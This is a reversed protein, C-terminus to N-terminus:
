IGYRGRLANFNQQIESASLARNQIKVESVLGKFPYWTPTHGDGVTFKSSSNTHTGPYTGNTIFNGNIYINMTTNSGDYTTTFSPCYWTNLSLNTPSYITRQVSNILNSFILSNGGYFGFYPLHRGMFMNIANVSQTGYFCASWTMDNGYTQINVEVRDDVGDFSLAGGNANSYGVGNMLTGSNGNGSLDTWVTGTGPYSMSNGANLSFIPCPGALPTGDQNISYSQSNNTATICFLQPITAAIYQYTTSGSSKVCKNTTSDPLACNITSPYSSNDVQFLKLLKSANDLDSTLSAVVARQQIGSYTVISIAALIGIVVIVILLEVITFGPSHAPKKYEMVVVYPM